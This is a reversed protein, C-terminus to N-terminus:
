ALYLERAKQRADAATPNGVDTEIEALIHWSKWSQRM